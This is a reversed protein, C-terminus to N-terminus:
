DLIALVAEVPRCVRAGKATVVIPREMLIPHEIMFDILQDDSWHTEALRLDEYLSGKARILARPSIGIAALLGVLEERTPPTKLYEIVTPEIGREQLLALTKRSTSCDPNHYIKTM